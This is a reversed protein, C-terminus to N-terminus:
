KDLQMKFASALNSAVRHYEEKNKWANKPILISSDVLEVTQPIQLHFIEDEVFEVNNLKDSQIQRIINRTVALPFCSGEGYSGGYWGTNILWVKIEYKKVFKRLLKSYVEPRLLM